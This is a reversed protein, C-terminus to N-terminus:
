KENQPDMIELFCIAIARYLSRDQVIIDVRCHIEDDDFGIHEDIVFAEYMISNGSPAITSIGYKIAIPMINEPRNCFDVVLEPHVVFYGREDDHLNLIECIKKNIQHNTAKNYNM